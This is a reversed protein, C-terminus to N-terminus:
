NGHDVAVIKCGEGAIRALVSDTIAIAKKLTARGVRPVGNRDAGRGDALMPAITEVLKAHLNIDTTETNAM